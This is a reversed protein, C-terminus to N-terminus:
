RPPRSGAATPASATGGPSWRGCTPTTPLGAWSATGSARAARVLAALLAAVAAALAEGDVGQARLRTVAFM